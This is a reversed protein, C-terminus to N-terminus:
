GLASTLENMLHTNEKILDPVTLKRGKEDTYIVIGKVATTTQNLTDRPLIKEYRDIINSKEKLNDALDEKSTFTIYAFVGTFLSVFLLIILTYKNEKRENDEIKELEEIYNSISLKYNDLDIGEDLSLKRIDDLIEKRNRTKM